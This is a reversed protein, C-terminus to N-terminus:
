QIIWAGFHFVTSLRLGPKQLWWACLSPIPTIHWISKFLIIRSNGHSLIEILEVKLKVRHSLLDYSWLLKPLSALKKMMVMMMMVMMDKEGKRMGDGCLPLRGEVTSTHPQCIGQEKEIEGAGTFARVTHQHMHGIKRRELRKEWDLRQITVFMAKQFVSTAMGNGM